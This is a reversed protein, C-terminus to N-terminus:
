RSEKGKKENRKRDEKKVKRKREEGKKEKRKREEGKKEKRNRDEKKEKRRREKGEQRDVTSCKVTNQLRNKGIRSAVHSRDDTAATVNDMFETAGRSEKVM